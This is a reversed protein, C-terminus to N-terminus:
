AAERRNKRNKYQKDLFNLMQTDMNAPSPRMNGGTLFLELARARDITRHSRDENTPGWGLRLMWNNLADPDVGNERYTLVSAAGDRKSLKKKNAMILGVHSWLPYDAKLVGTDNLVYWLAMHKATNSVHDQGRIVWTVKSDMDDVVSAFHYTPLGDSRLIVLGNISEADKDTVKVKGILTDEWEAVYVKPAFRIADGDRVAVGKEVLLNALLRYRDLRESQRFTSDFNLGLWDMTEFIINVAEESNRATDTDDIRLIFKGGSARAALWNFLATRATGLHFM